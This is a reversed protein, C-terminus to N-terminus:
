VVERKFGADVLRAATVRCDVQAIDMLERIATERQEAAIQKETKAPLVRHAAFCEYGTGFDCDIRLMLFTDGDDDTYSAVIKSPKSLYISVDEHHHTPLSMVQVMKGVACWEVPPLGDQPGSWPKPDEKKNFLYVTEGLLPSADSDYPMLEADLSDYDKMKLVLGKPYTLSKFGLAHTVKYVKEDTGDLTMM